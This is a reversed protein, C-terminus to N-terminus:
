KIKYVKLKGVQIVMGSKIEIEAAPNETKNGDIKLAGQDVLRRAESNSGAVGLKVILSTASFKGDLEVTPINEPLERGSFQKKFAEKAQEAESESHYMKTIGYALAEKIDRPNKGAKMEEEYKKIETEPIDTCLEFYEVIASDPISMLKGFMEVVPETIGIYNNASKSMKIKGDLGVLLKVIFLEQPEKNMKKQLHRGALLNFKQDTGGFEVDAEVAISDYAQMLPYFIEHLAIDSGKKLRKEFDDREIIQAVTFKGALQILDNFTLKSLWESNYRIETKDVDLIKGAQDFYTKANAKIEEDTLVPRTTNRGSPDGIKTTYDGIIFVITHGADQLDKLKRMVVAHGLHLDPKTPDVGYKIRLKKSELRQKLLSEDIIESVGKIFFDKEM